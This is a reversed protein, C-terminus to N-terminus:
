IHILSLWDAGWGEGINNSIQVLNKFVNNGIKQISGILSGSSGITGGFYDLGNAIKKLDLRKEDLIFPHRNFVLCYLICGAAWVDVQRLYHFQIVLTPFKHMLECSMYAPSGAIITKPVVNNEM